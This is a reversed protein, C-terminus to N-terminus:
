KLVYRGGCRWLRSGCLTDGQQDWRGLEYGVHKDGTPATWGDVLSSAFAFCTTMPLVDLVGDQTPQPQIAVCM